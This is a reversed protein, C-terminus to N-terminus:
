KRGFGDGEREREGGSPRIKNSDSLRNMLEEIHERPRPQWFKLQMSLGERGM